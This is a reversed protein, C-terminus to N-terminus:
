FEEVAGWGTLLIYVDPLGICGRWIIRLRGSAASTKERVSPISEVKFTKQLFYPNIWLEIVLPAGRADHLPRRYAWKKDAHRDGVKEYFGTHFVM